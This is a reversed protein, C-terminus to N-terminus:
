RAEFVKSHYCHFVQINIPKDIMFVDNKMTKNRMNLDNKEKRERPLMGDM